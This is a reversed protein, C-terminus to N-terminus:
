DRHRSGRELRKTLELHESVLDLIGRSKLLEMCEQPPPGNELEILTTSSYKSPTLFLLLGGCLFILFPILLLGFRVTWKWRNYVRSPIFRGRIETSSM